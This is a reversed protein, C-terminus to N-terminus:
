KNMVQKVQGCTLMASGYYPNKITEESSLWYVKKMPCFDVYVPQNTLKYVKNLKSFNATLSAFHERQHDLEKSETLHRADFLLKSKLDASASLDLADIAKVMATAHTQVEPSNSKVLDDKVQYYAKLVPTDQAFLSGAFVM